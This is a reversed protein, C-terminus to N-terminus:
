KIEKRPQCYRLACEAATFFGIHESNYVTDRSSLFTSVVSAKSDCFIGTKFQEESEKRINHMKKCLIQDTCTKVFKVLTNDCEKRRVCLGILM